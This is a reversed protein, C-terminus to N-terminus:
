ESNRLTRQMHQNLKLWAEVNEKAFIRPSLSSSFQGLILSPDEVGLDHRLFNSSVVVFILDLLAHWSQYFPLTDVAFLIEGDQIARLVAANQDFTVLVASSETEAIADRAALGVQANLTVVASVSAADDSQRLRAAIAAKTASLDSVGSAAVWLREVPGSYGGNLGDCREELGVNAEEHIVCLAIGTVGYVDLQRGIESGAASEDISVHRSSGLSRFDTRGSNFSVVPVDEAIAYAIANALGAPDALTTAIGDAGDTVCKRILDAQDVSDPAAVYEVRVGFTQGLSVGGQRILNWFEEDGSREHTVLCLYSLREAALELADNETTSEAIAVGLPSSSFWRGAEADPTLFRADPLQRSAWDGGSRQQLGVEVRGDGLRRANIRVEAESSTAAWVLGVAGATLLVGMFFSILKQAM